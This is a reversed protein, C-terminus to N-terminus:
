GIGKVMKEVYELAAMRNIIIGSAQAEKVQELIEGIRPNSKLGFNVILDNGSLLKPPSIIEYYHNFWSDFIKDISKLATSWRLLPMKEEYTAILDALHLFGIMIGSKKTERFFRYINKLPEKDEGIYKMKKDMHHLVVSKVFQIEENSYALAKLREYAINASIEAHNKYIVKEEIIEPKIMSKGSDHYLAALAMLITLPIKEEELNAFHKKLGAKYKDIIELGQSIKENEPEIQYNEKVDNMFLQNVEGVRLSHTFIDHVHPISPPISQLPILEPFIQSFLNFETLLNISEKIKSLNLINNIEDRIRESSVNKLHSSANIILQRMHDDFSLSLSQIFRIARLTRVPDNLFSNDSCPNLERNKLDAKGGLPDIIKDLDMIDIAMANITFDRKALDETIDRGSTIAIDVKLSLKDINVLARATERQHDLLYFDGIFFDAIKRAAKGANKTVTFDLDDSQKNLLNDRVFGGILYIEGYDNKDALLIERIKKLPGEELIM